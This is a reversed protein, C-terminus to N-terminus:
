ISYFLIYFAFLVASSMIAVLIDNWSGKGKAFLKRPVQPVRHPLCVKRRRPPPIIFYSIVDHDRLYQSRLHGDAPEVDYENGLCDLTAQTIHVRRSCIHQTTLFPHPQPCKRRM